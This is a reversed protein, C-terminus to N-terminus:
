PMEVKVRFFRYSAADWNAGDELDTWGGGLKKAGQVTYARNASEGREITVEPEGDVMEIGAVLDDDPDEPDLDAVYCEWVPRGNAAKARAATWYNGDAAALADAANGSIWTKPISVGDVDVCPNDSVVVQCGSPLGWSDTQDALWEPITISALESCGSFASNGINTVSDPITISTLGSCDYFAYDGISTVGNGIIISTLGSCGRFASGAINTVGNGITVSTLGSCNYFADWGISTVSDPITISTLGSCGFFASDGISAVSDPITISTLGSCGFCSSGAIGRVGTLDLDGSLSDTHGVAWRDVLKVGPISNTDFLVDSCGNFAHAGISTVSDPITISTLGSCNYFATGGISTVSDPITVSTLGSCGEFACGGISTVGDPIVLDKIEEGNLFLRHAYYCPNANGGGFSIGCWAALDSIHVETLGSCNHFAADGISTVSDPITVSTLGSCGDFAYSGISTMSDPITFTMKKAAPFKQGWKPDATVSAIGSCGDFAGNGISTVSDPITVSRLGYCDYFAYAGISTVSDPITISTLRSCDSFASSGIGRIETLDLNGSLAETHGVAWGDVLKVGPIRTTDFLADSCGDFAYSGISTVSDPITVSTLGSCNYFAYSGISTVSDPITLSTLGSCGSFAEDGISTVGDPIMISTLGSCGSFAYNGISTVTYGGLMTPIAIDGSTSTPVAPSAYGGGVSAEGNSVTYTWEIGDVVQTDAFAHSPLLMTTLVFIALHNNNRM